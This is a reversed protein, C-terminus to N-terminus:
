LNYKLSVTGDQNGSLYTGHYSKYSSSGTSITSLGEIPITEATTMIFLLYFTVIVLRMKMVM